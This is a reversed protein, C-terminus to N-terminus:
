KILKCIAKLVIENERQIKDAEIRYYDREKQTQEFLTRTRELESAGKKICGLADMLLIVEKSPKNGDIAPTQLLGTIAHVCNNAEEKFTSERVCNENM